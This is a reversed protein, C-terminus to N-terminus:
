PICAISKLRTFWSIALPVQNICQELGAVTESGRRIGRDSTTDVKTEPLSRSLSFLLHHRHHHLKAYGQAFQACSLGVLLVTIM